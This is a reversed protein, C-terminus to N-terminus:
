KDYFFKKMEESMEKGREKLEKEFQERMAQKAIKKVQSESTVLRIQVEKKKDKTDRYIEVVTRVRGLKQSVLTKFTASTVINTLSEAEDGDVQKNGILNDIIGTAESGIKGAIEIRALETAQIRAGDVTGGPTQGAGLIYRPELNEDVDMQYQYALDLQKEIPLGGAFVKWGEKILKKAEQKAAKSSKEKLEAKIEKAKEHQASQAMVKGAFLCVIAFLVLKKM